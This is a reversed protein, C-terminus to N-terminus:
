HAASPPPFPCNGHVWNVTFLVHMVDLQYYFFLMATTLTEAPPEIVIMECSWLWLGWMDPGCGGCSGGYVAGVRNRDFLSQYLTCIVIASYMCVCQVEQPSHISHCEFHKAQSFWLFLRLLVNVPVRELTVHQVSGHIDAPM